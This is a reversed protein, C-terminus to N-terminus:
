LAPPRQVRQAGEGEEAPHGVPAGSPKPRFVSMVKLRLKRLMAATMRSTHKLNDDHGVAWNGFTPSMSQNLIDRYM